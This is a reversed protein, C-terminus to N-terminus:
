IIFTLNLMPVDRDLLVVKKLLIKWQDEVRLQYECRAGILRQQALGVQQRDGPRFELVVLNSHVSVVGESGGSGVQVNSILHVTRSPPRQAYHATHRLSYVRQERAKANDYILSPEREPDSNDVMPLWYIGDPSFLKLWDDFLGEDLMRAEEFLFAEAEDRTLTV